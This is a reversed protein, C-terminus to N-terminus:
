EYSDLNLYNYIDDYMYWLDEKLNDWWWYFEYIAKEWRSFLTLYINPWWFTLTIEYIKFDNSDNEYVICDLILERYELTREYIDGKNEKYYVKELREDYTLEDEQMRYKSYSNYDQGLDHKETISACYKIFFEVESLEKFDKVEQIFSELYKKPETQM